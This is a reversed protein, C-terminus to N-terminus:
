RTHSVLLQENSEEITERRIVEGGHAGSATNLLLPSDDDAGREEESSSTLLCSEDSEDGSEYDPEPEPSDPPIGSLPANEWNESLLAGSYHDLEESQQSSFATDTTTGTVIRSLSDCRARVANKDSANGSMTPWVIQRAPRHFAAAPTSQRVAFHIGPRASQTPLGRAAYRLAEPPRRNFILAGDRRVAQFPGASVHLPLASCPTSPPETSSSPANHTAARRIACRRPRRSFPGSAVKVLELRVACNCLNWAAVGCM